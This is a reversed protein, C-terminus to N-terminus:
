MILQNYFKIDKVINTKNLKITFTTKNYNISLLTVSLHNLNRYVVYEYGWPKNVIRNDYFSDIKKM